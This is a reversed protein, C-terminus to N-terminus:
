PIGDFRFKRFRRIRQLCLCQDHKDQILVRESQSTGIGM